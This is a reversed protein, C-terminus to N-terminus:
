TLSLQTGSALLDLLADDPTRLAVVRECDDTAARGRAPEAVFPSSTFGLDPLISADTTVEIRAVVPGDASPCEVVVVRRARALVDRPIPLERVDRPVGRLGPDLSRAQKLILRRDALAGSRHAPWGEDMLKFEVDLTVVEVRQAMPLAANIQERWRETVSRLQAFLDDLEDDTLVDADSSTSRALRDITVAGDDGLRMEIVAPLATSASDPNAVSVAGAQVNVVAVAQDPGADPLLTFTAVGNALELPDDFRAHVLVGMAGSRHDVNELEREEFAEASWYSSWTKKLAWEITHDRDDADPAFRPDIFGTNSDYLGAGTFGEVDEVSSSSRFRIGQSDAYDGFQDTVRQTIEALTSPDMALDRLFRKFGGAALVDGLQTGAHREAIESALRADADSPYREDYDDRGELFLFRVAPSRRFEADGLMADLEAAVRDLHELYPRVTIALPREPTTVGPTGLLTLFGASKGGILPRLPEIDAEDDITAALDTLDVVTPTTSRDITPVVIRSPRVLRRWEDYEDRDILVIELDGGATTRVIVPARVRAAQRLGADDLIGARSANPIGRNRALLNVHALPTQPASTILASAPPLVDPVNEIVVVDTERADALTANVGDVVLLRGAAVGVNYVEVRGAPVLDAYRVIRDHYRAEAAEMAVAVAEQDPSRLVWELRDAIESPLTAALLDLYRAVEAATPVDSFELEMLWRVGGDAVDPFRVLSGLGYNRVDHTFGLRYFDDSYLRTGYTRSEIFRLDLPLEDGDQQSAWEVADDVTAFSLGDVPETEFGPVREGNLLRFWYWQDHVEYFRSDLWIVEDRRAMDPISFKVVSAGGIGARALEDFHGLGTIASVTHDDFGESDSPDSGPGDAAVHTTPPATTSTAVATTTATATATTPTEATEVGDGVAPEAPGPEDSTCASAVLGVAVGVILVRSRRATM